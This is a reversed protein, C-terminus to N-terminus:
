RKGREGGGGQPLRLWRFFAAAHAVTFAAVVAEVVLLPLEGALEVVIAAFMVAKTAMWCFVLWRWTLALRPSEQRAARFSGWAWAASIAVNLAMEALLVAEAPTM